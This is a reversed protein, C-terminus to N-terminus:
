SRGIDQEQALGKLIEQKKAAAVSFKGLLSELGHALAAKDTYSVDNFKDMGNGPGISCQGDGEYMNPCTMFSGFKKSVSDRLVQEIVSMSQHKEYGKDKFASLLATEQDPYLGVDVSWAISKMAPLDGGRQVQIIGNLQAPDLKLGAKALRTELCAVLAQHVAKEETSLTYNM